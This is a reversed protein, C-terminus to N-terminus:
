YYMPPPHFPCDLIRNKEFMCWSEYSCVGWSPLLPNTLQDATFNLVFNRWHSQKGHTTVPMPGPLLVNSVDQLSTTTSGTNKSTQDMDYGVSVIDQSLLALPIEETDSSQSGAELVTSIDCLSTDAAETVQNNARKSAISAGSNKIMDIKRAKRKAERLKKSKKKQSVIVHEAAAKEELETAFTEPEKSLQTLSYKVAPANSSPEDFSDRNASSQDLPSTETHLSTRALQSQQSSFDDWVLSRLATAKSRTGNTTTIWGDTSSPMITKKIRALMPKTAQQVTKTNTVRVSVLARGPTPDPLLPLM